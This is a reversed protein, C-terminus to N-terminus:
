LLDIFSAKGDLLNEFDKGFQQIAFDINYDNILNDFVVPAITIAGVGREVLSLVQNTNKFSAALIESDFNNNELINQIKLSIGVGEYGLNDIRNVYPALYIAGSKAAMFAQM